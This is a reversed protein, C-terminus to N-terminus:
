GKTAVETSILSLIFFPINFYELRKKLRQAGKGYGELLLFGVNFAICSWKLVVKPALMVILPTARDNHTVCSSCHLLSTITVM